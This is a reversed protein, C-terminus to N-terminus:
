QPGASQGGGHHVVTLYCALLRHLRGKFAEFSPQLMSMASSAARASLSLCARLGIWTRTHSAAPHTEDPAWATSFPRASATWAAPRPLRTSTQPTPQMRRQQS